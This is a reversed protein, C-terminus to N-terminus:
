AEEGGLVTTLECCRDGVILNESKLPARVGAAPSLLSMTLLFGVTM